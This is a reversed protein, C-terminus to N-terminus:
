QIELKYLIDRNTFYFSTSDAFIAGIDDFQNKLIIKKRKTHSADFKIVQYYSDKEGKYFILAINDSWGMKVASLGELRLLKKQNLARRLSLTADEFVGLNGGDSSTYVANLEVESALLTLNNFDDTFYVDVTEPGGERSSDIGFLMKPSELDLYFINKIEQAPFNIKQPDAGDPDASYLENEGIEENYYVYVIKDNNLWIIDYMLPNYFNLKQTEFDYLWFVVQGDALSTNAYVSDYREFLTKNYTVKLIAKQRDPSWIVKDPTDIMQSIQNVKAEDVIFEYFAAERKNSFFVIKGEQKFVPFLMQQDSLPVMNIPKKKQVLLITVIAAVILIVVIIFIYYKNRM